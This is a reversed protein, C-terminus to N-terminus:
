IHARKWVLFYKTQMTSDQVQMFASSKGTTLAQQHVKQITRRITMPTRHQVSYVTPSTSHFAYFQAQRLLKYRFGESYSSFRLWWSFIKGCLWVQFFVQRVTRFTFALNEWDYYSAGYILLLKYQQSNLKIYSGIRSMTSIVLIFVIKCKECM